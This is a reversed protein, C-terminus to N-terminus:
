FVERPDRPPSEQFGGNERRHREYQEVDAMSYRITGGIRMYSPGDGRVRWRQLTRVSMKWRAALERELLVGVNGPGGEGRDNLDM